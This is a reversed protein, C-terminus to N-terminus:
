SRPNPKSTPPAPEQGAAQEVTDGINQHLDKGKLGPLDAKTQEWDRKLARGVSSGSKTRSAKRSSSNTRARQDRKRTGTSGTEDDLRAGAANKRVSEVGRLAATKTEYAESTAIVKGNTALLNFRYKGTTGRKLVFKAAM